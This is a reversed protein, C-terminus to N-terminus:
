RALRSGGSLRSCGQAPGTRRDSRPALTLDTAAPLTPSTGLASRTIVRAPAPIKM